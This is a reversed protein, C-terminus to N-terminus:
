TYLSCPTSMFQQGFINLRRTPKNRLQRCTERMDFERCNHCMWPLNNLGFAQVELILRKKHVFRKKQCIRCFTQCHGPKVNSKKRPKRPYERNEFYFQKLLKPMPPPPFVTGKLWHYETGDLHVSPPIVSQHLHGRFEIDDFRTATLYPDPNVFLHHTSRTSRYMPHPTNAILSELFVNAEPTDGEVDVLEGLLLGMNHDKRIFASRCKELDWDVNWAKGVPIKSKEYIPIIKLGLSVYFDFYKLQLM